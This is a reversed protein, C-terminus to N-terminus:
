DPTCTRHIGIDYICLNYVWLKQLYYAIGTPLRPCPFTQHLDMAVVRVNSDALDKVDKLFHQVERGKAKQSTLREELDMKEQESVSANVKAALRDCKSCTDKEPAESGMNYCEAFLKRYFREKVTKEQPHNDAMWVLYKGHLEKVSAGHDPYKHHPSKARSYHSTITPLSQIHEHVRNLVVGTIKRGNPRRGRQDGPASGTPFAKMKALQTKLRRMSIGHINVFGSRCVIFEKHYKVSYEHNVRASVPAKTYKRKIPVTRVMKQIYSNQADYNGMAWFRENIARVSEDGVRVFCGDACPPGIKKASMKSGTVTTYELGLNRRRKAVAQKSEGRVRSRGVKPRLQKERTRGHSRSGSVTPDSSESVGSVDSGSPRAGSGHPDRGIGSPGAVGSIAAVGSVRENEDSSGSDLIVATFDPDNDSDVVSIDSGSMAKGSKELLSVFLM